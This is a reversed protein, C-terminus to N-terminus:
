VFTGQVDTVIMTLFYWFFQSNSEYLIVNTIIWFHHSINSIKIYVVLWFPYVTYLFMWCIASRFIFIMLAVHHKGFIMQMFGEFTAHFIKPSVLNWLDHFAFLDISVIITLFHEKWPFLLFKVEINQINEMWYKVMNGVKVWKILLYFLM